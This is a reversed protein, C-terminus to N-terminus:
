GIPAGEAAPLDERRVKIFTASIVAAFLIIGAAWTFASSYGQIQAKLQDV